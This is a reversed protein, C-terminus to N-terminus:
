RSTVVIDAHRWAILRGARELRVIGRYDGEPWGEPPAKRGFARYHSAQPSKLLISHSFIEGEPGRASLHLIDGTEAHFMHGYLVLPQNPRARTARAEGSKVTDFSPVEIAMGATFLGSRLYAPATQWLGNDFIGCSQGPDAQFPDVVHGDKLVGIHLHPINTLGSLGVLGLPDGVNVLDGTKVQVSGKRMHCYLTQWGEGHDIRVANGCGKNQTAAYTEPTVAIDNMGDRTASVRGAAAALVRVGNEMMSFDRVVIDTGRHGDRSKLGCTFDRHDPGPDNDVYDEIYCTKGLECEIPWLLEPSGAQAAQATLLLATFGSRKRM